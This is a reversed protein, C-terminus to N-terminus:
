KIKVEAGCNSCFPIHAFNKTGCKACKNFLVLGCYRCFDTVGAFIDSDTIKNSTKDWGKFIFDKGCSPCVHNEFSKIVTDNALKKARDESSSKLENNIKDLYKRFYKIAYYGMGITLFVGVTYRIYGGYSPMYPVLGVFFIYISFFSFGNFIPAFKSSRYKIFLYVGIVLVPIVFILRILFVKLEYYKYKQNYIESALNKEGQIKEEIVYKQKNLESEEDEVAGLKVRWAQEISYYEDLKRARDTVEVDKDPTGLTKRTLIWNDFSAKENEYNLKAAEITKEISAKKEFVIKLVGEVTEIDKDFLALKEKNEFDMVSPEHILADIDDMFINSLLVLFLCLLFSILFNVFKILREIKKSNNEM